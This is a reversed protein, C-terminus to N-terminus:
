FPATFSSRATAYANWFCQPPGCHSRCHPLSLIDWDRFAGINAKAIFSFFLPVVTCIALFTHRSLPLKRWLFVAMCAAPASLLQLNIFDVLHEASFVRYQAYYGPEAFVPLVDGSGMGTLYANTGVGSIWLFAAATIPVCCLAVLTKALKKWPPISGRGHRHVRYALFLLSPGFVALSPHLALLVGTVSAPFFLPLRNELTRLGMFLYLLLGPLYLAYNEVYGFFQQIFGATLLFALLISRELGNKGLAAAVPFSLLVYLTGSVYSYVRYTNEATEWLTSGLRHLTGILAYTLPARYQDHWDEADLKELVHYGDGLFHRASSFAFFAVLATLIVPGRTIWVRRGRDWISLPLYCVWARVQRRFGPIFLLISFLVFAVQVPAPLYVLSDVGWLADPRWLLPMIHLGLFVAAIIAPPSIARLPQNGPHSDTLDSM